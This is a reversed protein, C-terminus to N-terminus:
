SDALDDYPAGSGGLARTLWAEPDGPRLALLQGYADMARSAAGGTRM